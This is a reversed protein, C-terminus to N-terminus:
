ASHSTKHHTFLEDRKAKAANAAESANDFSGVYHTKQHHVVRAIWKQSRNCFHVGRYGSKNRTYLKINESNQKNTAPRLNQFRNDQRDGNIHDVQTHVDGTMYIWVLRHALYSKYDVCIVRYGDNRLTGVTRRMGRVRGIRSFEGTSPDYYLLEKLRTQTLM